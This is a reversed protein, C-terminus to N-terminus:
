PFYKQRTRMKMIASEVTWEAEGSKPIYIRKVQYAAVGGGGAVGALELPVM